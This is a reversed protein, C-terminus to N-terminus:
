SPAGDPLSLHEQEQMVFGAALLALKGQWMDQKMHRSLLARLASQAVHTLTCPGAAWVHVM